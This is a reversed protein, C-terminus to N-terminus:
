GWVIAALWAGVELGLGLAAINFVLIIWDLKTGNRGYYDDMWATMALKVHPVDTKEGEELIEAPDLGFEWGRRAWLVFISGAVTVGFLGIAVWSWGDLGHPQELAASGLFSTAISAGALLSGVRERVAGVADRQHEILRVAQDFALDELDSM